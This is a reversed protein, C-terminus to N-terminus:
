KFLNLVTAVNTATKKINQNGEKLITKLESIEPIISFVADIGEDYVSEYGESLSGAIAIVPVGHKKAVKAIAVPTKGYITQHNINGEGTIVLDATKITNDLGLLEVLLDGGRQLDADLFAILGAGLGGAAGAGPKNKVKKNLEESIRDAYHNLNQDLIKIQESTGGKQPAYIYAAGNKGTLPNDVDSAVKVSVEKIRSHLDSLDITDLDRLGEGNPSISKGKKDFLEGGLAMVMGAGGDNTASGGIGLLLEDVGEELADYILEGFGLTTTLLPNRKEVGIKELGSSSAMEIVALKKDGSLGYSAEISEFLPGTVRMKKLTGGTADIVSQVTGEGGDAMPVKTYKAQPIIQKFGDEIASAAELATMSEKFSDPTIVINM